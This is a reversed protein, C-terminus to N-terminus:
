YLNIHITGCLKHELIVAINLASSVKNENHMVMGARKERVVM